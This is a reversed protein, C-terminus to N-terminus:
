KWFKFPQGNKKKEEERIRDYERELKKCEEPDECSIMKDFIEAGEKSPLRMM